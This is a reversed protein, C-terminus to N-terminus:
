EGRLAVMPDVMAARRAPLYSAVLAVSGLLLAIVTYTLPDAPSVGYLQNALFRGGAFAGAVGIVIGIAALRLGERLVLRLVERQGAGLAVRIGLERTRQNVRYSIVGYLGVVALALAVAGLISLLLAGVRQPVLAAGMHEAMTRPQLFPLGPDLAEFTKRLTGVLAHPDGATRVHLTLDASYWQTVPFYMYSRPSEDLKEYKGTKVVGVVTRWGDGGGDFRKGLPDEGPWFRAALAENVIAVPLSGARDDDGFERGRVVPIQMTHFYDPTVRNYVVTMYEGQQPTYGEVTIMSSGGGSFGLPVASGLGAARVGPLSRVQELLRDV